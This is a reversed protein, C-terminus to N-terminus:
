PPETGFLLAAIEHDLRGRAREIRTSIGNDIKIGGGEAVALVTGPPLDACEIEPAVEVQGELGARALADAAIARDAASVAISGVAKPEARVSRSEARLDGRPAARRAGASAARSLPLALAAQVVLRRLVAEYWAGGASAPAGGASAPARGASASARAAAEAFAADLASRRLGLLESRASAEDEALIRSRDTEMQALLEARSRALVAAEAAASREAIAEIAAEAERSVLDREREAARSLSDRLAGELPAGARPPVETM